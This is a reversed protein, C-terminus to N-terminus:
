NKRSYVPLAIKENIKLRRKGNIEQLLEVIDRPDMYEFEPNQKKIVYVYGWYGENPITTKFEIGKYSALQRQTIGIKKYIDRKSHIYAKEAFRQTKKALGLYPEAIVGAGIVLFALGVLAAKKGINLEKQFMSTEM